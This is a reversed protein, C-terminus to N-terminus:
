RADVRFTTKMLGTSSFLITDSHDGSSRLVVPHTKVVLWHRYTKNQEMVNKFRLDAVYWGIHFRLETLKRQM